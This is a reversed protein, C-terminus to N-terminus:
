FGLGISFLPDFLLNDFWIHLVTSLVVIQDMTDALLHLM